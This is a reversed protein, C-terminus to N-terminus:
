IDHHAGYGLTVVHAICAMLICMSTVLKVDKKDQLMDVVTQNPQKTNIAFGM